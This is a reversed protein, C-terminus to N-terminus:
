PRDQPAVAVSRVVRQWALSFVVVRGADSGPVAFARPVDASLTGLFVSDPALSESSDAGPMWYVLADPVLPEGRPDLEIVRQAGPEPVPERLAAELGATRPQPARVALAVAVAPPLVLALGLTALRHSRRLSHIM